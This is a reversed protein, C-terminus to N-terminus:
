NFALGMGEVRGLFSLVAQRKEAQGRPWRRGGRSARIDADYSDYLVASDRSYIMDNLIALAPTLKVGFLHLREVGVATAAEHIGSILDLLESDKMRRCLSGVAMYPRITCAEQHREICHIYEDLTYGQIVPVALPGPGVMAARDLTERANEVTALIRQENTMLGLQRSIDPECPYDMTAYYDPRLRSVLNLYNDVSFPYDGYENLLTFGGSDLWRLGTQKLWSRRRWRSNETDWFGGASYMVNIGDPLWRFWQYRPNLGIFFLSM